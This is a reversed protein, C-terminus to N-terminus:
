RFWARVTEEAPKGTIDYDWPERGGAQLRWVFLGAFWPERAFVTFLADWCAAQHEADLLPTRDDQWKWPHRAAEALATYGTETFLIPRGTERAIRRLRRRAPRWNNIISLRGESARHGVEFYAGIGVYDLADWFSVAEFEGDWNASYTLKGPYVERVRQIMRRWRGPSHTVAHRYELGICLLAVQEETALAAYHLLMREYAQHWQDWLADSAMRLSGRWPFPPVFFADSEIRPLLMVELGRGRASRIAARLGSDDDPIDIVPRELDTMAVSPGIAVWDAGLSSAVDMTAAMEPGDLRATGVPMVWAGRLWRQPAHPEGCAVLGVAVLLLLSLPARRRGTV